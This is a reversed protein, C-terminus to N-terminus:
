PFIRAYREEYHLPNIHSSLFRNIGSTAKFEKRIIKFRTQTYKPYMPNDAFYDFSNFTFYHKHTPDRFADPHSFHPVEIIIVANPKSIRYIEEMVKVVNDLHELIHRCIIKDFSNSKIPWPYFNLDAVIDVGPYKFRDIGIANYTKKNGCGLDLIFM